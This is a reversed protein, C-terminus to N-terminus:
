WAPCPRSSAPKRGLGRGIAAFRAGKPEARWSKSPWFVKAGLLSVVAPVLTLGALLTVAVAIALSPGMSRFFGFLSLAMSLFAIIVVAAASTIAEGVRSVATVMAQKPEDGARLRERFRFMLFLIYDTGVGFLVVILISSISADTQM